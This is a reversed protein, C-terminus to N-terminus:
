TVAPNLNMMKALRPWRPTSKLAAAHAHLFFFVAPHRQEIAKEAWDATRDLDGLVLYYMSPGIWDDYTNASELTDLLRQSEANKGARKLLAARFGVNPKFWPAMQCARECLHASEEWQGSIALNVGLVFYPFWFDSNIAILQRLEHDADEPRGAARLCVALESRAVLNLPDEEVSRQYHRM